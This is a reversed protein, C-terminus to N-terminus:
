IRESFKRTQLLVSSTNVLKLMIIGCYANRDLLIDPILRVTALSQIAGRHTNDGEREYRETALILCSEGEAAQM